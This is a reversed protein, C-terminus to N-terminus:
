LWELSGEPNAYIGNEADRVLSAPIWSILGSSWSDQGDLYGIWTDWPPQNHPDFLGRSLDGAGGDSLTLDHRFILLRGEQQAINEANWVWGQEELLGRRKTVVERIIEIFASKAAVNVRINDGTIPEESPRLDVSRLGKPDAKNGLRKKCWVAAEVGSRVLDAPLTRM